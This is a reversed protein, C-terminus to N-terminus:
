QTDAEGGRFYARVDSRFMLYGTLAFIVAHPLLESRMFFWVIVVHGAIWALTLWRAWNQGRLMFIGCVIWTADLLVIWILDQEPPWLMKAGAFGRVLGFVGAAMVLWSVVTVAYPRKMTAM